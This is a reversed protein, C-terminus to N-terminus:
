FAQEPVDHLRRKTMIIHESIWHIYQIPCGNLSSDNLGVFFVLIQVVNVKSLQLSKRRGHILEPSSEIKTWKRHIYALQQWVPLKIMMKIVIWTM